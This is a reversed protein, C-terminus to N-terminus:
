IIQMRTKIYMSCEESYKCSKYIINSLVTNTKSHKTHFQALKLKAATDVTIEWDGLVSGITKISKYCIETYIKGLYSISKLLVSQMAMCLFTEVQTVDQVISGNNCINEM